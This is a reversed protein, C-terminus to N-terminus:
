HKAHGWGQALGAAQVRRPASGAVPDWDSLTEASAYRLISAESITLASMYREKKKLIGQLHKRGKAMFCVCLLLNFLYFCARRTRESM